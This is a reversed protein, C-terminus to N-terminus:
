IAEGPSGGCVGESNGGPKAIKFLEIGSVELTVKNIDRKGAERIRCNGYIWNKLTSMPVLCAEVLKRKVNNYEGRPITDLWCRM